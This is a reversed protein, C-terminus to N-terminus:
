WFVPDANRELFFSSRQINTARQKEFDFQMIFMDNRPKGSTWRLRMDKREQETDTFCMREAQM